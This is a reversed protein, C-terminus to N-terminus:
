ERAPPDGIPERGQDSPTPTMSGKGKMAALQDLLLQQRERDRREKEEESLAKPAPTGGLIRKLEGMVEQQEAAPIPAPKAPAQSEAPPREATAKQAKGKKGKAKAFDDFVHIVRHFGRGIRQILKLAQLQQLGKQFTRRCIGCEQAAKWDRTRVPNNFRARRALFEYVTRAAGPLSRMFGNKENVPVRIFQSGIGAIPPLMM